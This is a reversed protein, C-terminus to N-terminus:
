TYYRKRSFIVISLKRKQKNDTTTGTSIHGKDAKQLFFPFIGLFFVPIINV